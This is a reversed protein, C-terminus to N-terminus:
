VLDPDAALLRRLTVADGDIVAEAAREFRSVASSRDAVAAVHSELSAWDLFNYSRAVALKADDRDVPIARAEADSEWFRQLWPVKDDLFKPHNARFTKVADQDGSQWGALLADAQRLYDGIAADLPLFTM